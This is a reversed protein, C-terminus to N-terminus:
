ATVIILSSFSVQLALYLVHRGSFWYKMASWCGGIQSTRTTSTSTSVFIFRKLLITRGVDTFVKKPDEKAGTPDQVKEISLGIGM